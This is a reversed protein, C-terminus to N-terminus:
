VLHNQVTKPVRNQKLGTWLLTFAAIVLCWCPGGLRIWIVTPTREGHFTRAGPPLIFGLFLILTGIALPWRNPNSRAFLLVSAASTFILADFLHRTNTQPAFALVIAILMVWEIATLQAGHNHDTFLGVRQRHYM